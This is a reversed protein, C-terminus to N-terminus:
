FGPAERLGAQEGEEERCHAGCMSPSAGGPNARAVRESSACRCRPEGRLSALHRDCGEGKSSCSRGDASRAPGADCRISSSLVIHHWAPHPLDRHAVSYGQAGLALLEVMPHLWQGQRELSLLPTTGDWSPIASCTGLCSRSTRKGLSTHQLGQMPPFSALSFIAALAKGLNNVGQLVSDPHPIVVTGANAGRRGEVPRHLGECRVSGQAPHAAPRM